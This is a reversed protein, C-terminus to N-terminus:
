LICVLSSHCSASRHKHPSSHSCVSPFFLSYWPACSFKQPHRFWGSWLSPKGHTDGYRIAYSLIYLQITIMDRDKFISESFLLLFYEFKEGMKGWRQEWVYCVGYSGSLAQVNATGEAQFATGRITLFSAGRMNQTKTWIDGERSILKIGEGLMGKEEEWTVDSM